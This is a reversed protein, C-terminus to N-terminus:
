YDSPVITNGSADTYSYVVGNCIKVSIGDIRPGVTECKSAVPAVNVSALSMLASVIFTIM